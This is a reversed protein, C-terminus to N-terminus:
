LQESKIGSLNCSLVTYGTESRHTPYNTKKGRGGVLPLTAWKGKGRISNPHSIRTENAM